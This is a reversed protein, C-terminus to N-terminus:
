KVIPSNATFSFLLNPLPALGSQSRNGQSDALVQNWALRDAELLARPNLFKAERKMLKTRFACTLASNKQVM